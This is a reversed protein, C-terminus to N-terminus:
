PCNLPDLLAGLSIQGKCFDFPMAKAVFYAIAYTQLGEPQPAVAEYLRGRGRGKKPKKLTPPLWHGQAEYLHSKGRGTKPSRLSLRTKAAKVLM